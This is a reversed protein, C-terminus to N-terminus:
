RFQDWGPSIAVCGPGSEQGLSGAGALERDTESLETEAHDKAPNSRETIKPQGLLTRVGVDVGM